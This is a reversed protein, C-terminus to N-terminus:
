IPYIRRINEYQNEDLYNQKILQRGVISHSIYLESNNYYREIYDVYQTVNNFDTIYGTLGHIVVDTVGGAPNAIIPKGFALAELAVRPLGETWSPHILIDISRFYDMINSPNLIIKVHNGLNDSDITKIINNYYKESEDGEYIIGILIMEFSINRNILEKAIDLCVHQGKTKLFGGSHLIKIPNNSNFKRYSPNYSDFIKKQIVSNLVLINDFYSIGGTYLAQRTSQSVTIFRPAYKRYKNKSFLSLSKYDFWGRAFYDIKYQSNRKLINLCKLNNVNVIDPNFERVIKEFERRYKEQLFIYKIANQLYKIKTNAYILFPKDRKELVRFDLNQNKVADVFEFCCGWFDVILIKHGLNRLRSALEVTSKRAGGYNQVAELFIIKM